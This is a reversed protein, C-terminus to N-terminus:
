TPSTFPELQLQELARRKCEDTSDLLDQILASPNNLPNCNCTGSVPSAPYTINNATQKSSDRSSTMQEKRFPLSSVEHFLGHQAVPQGWARHRQCNRWTPTAKNIPNCATTVASYIDVVM